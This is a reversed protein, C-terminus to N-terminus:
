RKNRMIPLRLRIMRAVYRENVWEVTPDSLFAKQRQVSVRGTLTVMCRNRNNKRPNQDACDQLARARDEQRTINILYVYITEGEQGSPHYVGCLTPSAEQAYGILCSVTLQQGIFETSAAVVKLADGAIAATPLAALTLMIVSGAWFPWHSIHHWLRQTHAGMAADEEELACGNYCFLAADALEIFPSRRFAWPCGLLAPEPFKFLPILPTEAQSRGSHSGFLLFSSCAVNRDKIEIVQFPYIASLPGDPFCM